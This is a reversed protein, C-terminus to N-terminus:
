STSVFHIIDSIQSSSLFLDTSFELSGDRLSLLEYLFFGLTSNSCNPFCTSRCILYNLGLPSLCRNHHVGHASVGSILKSKHSLCKNIFNQTRKFILEQVSSTNTVAHVLYGHSNRPLLWLRKLASRWAVALTDIGPNNLSWLECGFFSTCFINLLRQKVNSTLKSFYCIVNNCQGIFTLRKELIDDFDDFRFNILHGLHKYSPVSDIPQGNITFNVINNTYSHVRYPRIIVCKSKASNFIIDNLSAFTDCISLLTRMASPTPTILVIDDAYALAGIFYSGIHCGVRSNSLEVLLKDIYICFLVPSLVGGQKVGNRAVFQESNCSSWSVYVHNNSYFCLIIRVIIPPLQRELLEHFLKYYHIRDFAKTADLFTCYVSSQNKIYYSITEKLVMTCMQTSHASKFGFQLESTELLLRYRDIIINDLLKGFISSIAIGRYNASECPNLGHGKPIPKIASCQFMTPVFGHIILATLLLSTFVFFDDNAYILHSSSLLGNVDNKMHKMKSVAAHVDNATIIFDAVCNTTNLQEDIRLTLKDMESKEYSVSNFLAHYKQGFLQAIEQSNSHGDVTCNNLVKSNKIKKVEQWFDRDNNQLLSQAFRNRVIDDEDRRARRIAYHYAARTRRMSDAVAGERPRGCEVWLSHWFLSKDRYPAVFETWGPVRSSPGKAHPFTDLGTRHCIDVLGGAFLELSKRHELNTCHTNTCSLADVPLYILKLKATLLNRYNEINDPKIKSWSISPNNTNVPRSVAVYNVPISVSLCILDHDSTNDCDHFVTFTRVFNYFLLPSLLFNDLTSFRKMSFNYSYDVSCNPHETGILLNMNTCFSRLLTTHLSNCRTFDVNYDGGIIYLCDLNNTILQEVALLVDSFEDSNVDNNEYPMYVNVLLIKTDSITLRVASIRRSNSSLTVVSGNIDSRWLIACGGYPRGALVQSNDFGSSGYCIFRPDINGFYQEIQMDSLWHEQLYLIDVKDLYSKILQKKVSNFGRCNLSGIELSRSADIM